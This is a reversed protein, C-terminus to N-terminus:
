HGMYYTVTVSNNTKNGFLAGAALGILPNIIIGTAVGIGVTKGVSRTTKSNDQVSMITWRDRQQHYNMDKQADQM